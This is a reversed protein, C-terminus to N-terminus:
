KDEKKVKKKNKFIKTIYMLIVAGVVIGAAIGFAIIITQSGKQIFLDANSDVIGRMTYYLTNGPLLPIIGPILFINAPSKIVRAMIQAYIFVAFAAVFNSIFLQQSFHYIILYIAWGMAGGLTSAIVNKESVRFYISFGLTGIGAMAIQLLADKM